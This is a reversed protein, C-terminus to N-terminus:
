HNLICGLSSNVKSIDGNNKPPAQNTIIQGRNVQKIVFKAESAAGAQTEESVLSKM